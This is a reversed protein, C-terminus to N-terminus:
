NICAMGTPGAEYCFHAHKAKAAIYRSLRSLFGAVSLAFPPPRYRVM